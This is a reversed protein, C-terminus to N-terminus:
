PTTQEEDSDDLSVIQELQLILAPVSREVIAWIQSLDITWYRHVLLNRLGVMRAWPIAPYLARTPDSIRAAAEGMIQLQHLAAAQMLKNAEFAQQDAGACFSQLDRAALLMDGLYSLDRSM